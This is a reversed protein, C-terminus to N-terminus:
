RRRRLHVRSGCSRVYRERKERTCRFRTCMDPPEHVYSLVLLYRRIKVQCYSLHTYKGTRGGGGGRGEEGVVGELHIYGMERPKTPLPTIVAGGRGEGKKSEKRKGEEGRGERGRGEGGKREKGKGGGFGGKKEGVSGESKRNVGRREGREGERLEGEREEM